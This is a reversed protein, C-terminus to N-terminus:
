KNFTGELIVTVTGSTWLRPRAKIWKVNTDAFSAMASSTLESTLLYGTTAASPKDDANSGTIAVTATNTITVECNYNQLGRVDIWEGNGAAGVGDLLKANLVSNGNVRTQNIAIAM